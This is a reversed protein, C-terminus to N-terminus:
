KESKAQEKSDLNLLFLTVKSTIELFDPAQIKELDDPIIGSLRSVVLLQSEIDYVSFQSNRSRLERDIALIDRGTLNELDLELSDILKGDVDIPKTLKFNM